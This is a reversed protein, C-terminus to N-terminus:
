PHLANIWGRLSELGDESGYDKESAKENVVGDDRLIKVWGETFEVEGGEWESFRFAGGSCDLGSGDVDTSDEGGEGLGEVGVGGTQAARRKELERELVATVRQIAVSQQQQKQVLDSKHAHILLPPTRQSAPLAALTRLVLHLHEAVAAGNRSVTAADVVFVVGAADPLHETFQERLRPHGPIDVLRLTRGAPAATYVTSNAQISTHTPLAHGFALTTHIATKGADSPGVILVTSRRSSPRGRFFTLVLVVLMAFALAAVALTNRSGFSFPEAASMADPTPAHHTRAATDNLDGM